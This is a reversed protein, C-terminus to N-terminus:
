WYSELEGKRKVDLTSCHLGGDWFWSHRLPVIIPEIKRKKFEVFIEKNYRGVAITNPDLQFSNTDFMTEPSYGYWNDLYDDIFSTLKDNHYSEDLYYKSLINNQKKNTRFKLFKKMQTTDPKVTIYDWGPFNEEINVAQESVLLLGERVVCIVGDSHQDYSYPRSSLVTREPKFRDDIFKCFYEFTQQDYTVADFIIRTGLRFISPATIEKTFQTFSNSLVNWDEIETKDKPGILTTNGIKIVHDRPCMLHPKKMPDTKDKYLPRKVVCGFDKLISEFNLFDEETEILIRKLQDKIKNDARINDILEPPYPRGVWVEELHSWENYATM